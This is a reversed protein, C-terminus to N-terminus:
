ALQEKINFEESEGGRVESLARKSESAAQFGRNILLLQYESAKVAVPQLKRASVTLHRIVDDSEEALTSM